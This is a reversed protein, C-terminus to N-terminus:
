IYEAVFGNHLPLYQRFIDALKNFVLETDMIDLCRYYTLLKSIAHDFELDTLFYCKYCSILELIIRNITPIINDSSLNPYEFPYTKYCDIEQDFIEQKYYLEQIELRDYVRGRHISM